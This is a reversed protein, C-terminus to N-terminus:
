KQIVVVCGQTWPTVEEVMRVGFLRGEINFRQYSDIPTMTLTTVLIRTTDLREMQKIEETTAVFTKVLSVFM